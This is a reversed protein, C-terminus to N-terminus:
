IALTFNRWRRPLGRTSGCRATTSLEDAYARQILSHSFQYTEQRGTVEDIVQAELAEDLLEFLGDEETDRSLVGLLRFDFERGVLSATVM